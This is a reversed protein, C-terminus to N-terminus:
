AGDQEGLRALRASAARLKDDGKCFAFRALNGLWSARRRRLNRGPSPKVRGRSLLPLTPPTELDGFPGSALM